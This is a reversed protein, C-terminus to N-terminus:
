ITIEILELSTAFHAPANNGTHVKVVSIHASRPRVSVSTKFDTKLESPKYGVWM